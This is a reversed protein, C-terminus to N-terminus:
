AAATRSPARPLDAEGIVRNRGANKARYLCDDARRILSTADDGKAFQAVGISITIKGLVDGTSKKILTKGEVGARIQEALRIANEVATQRLIVGFEEGGYRAATDRGKVNESLCNAVLRLVQDGTQHGFSDNFQKFHDIDCMFLSVARGTAKSDQIACELETDFAKRNAVGTLPDTLSEKRVDDLQARLTNVERSSKQLEAELSKTRQEMAATAGKLSNLLTKLEAPSREDALEGHARTLARGYEGADKEAAELKALVLALADTMGSSLSEMVQETRGGPLHRSRLDSLVAATFPRHNSIMDGMTRSIAQNAGSSYAYFLEFNEPTPTVDCEGMLALATKALAHEREQKYSVTV